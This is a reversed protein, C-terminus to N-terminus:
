DKKGIKLRKENYIMELYNNEEFVQLVIDFNNTLEKESLEEESIQYKKRIQKMKKKTKLMTPRVLKLEVINYGIEGYNKIWNSLM